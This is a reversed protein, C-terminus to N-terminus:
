LYESFSQATEKDQNEFAIQEFYVQTSTINRHRLWSMIEIPTSGKKAQLIGCSHRLSHVSFDSSLGAQQAYKKFREKVQQPNIAEDFIRQSPFLYLNEMRLKRNRAKLWRELKSFLRASLDYTRTRGNKLGTISIQFADLNVDSMKLKAAESVRLGLFFILRFLFMDRKDKSKDVAQFFRKLEAEDLYKLGHKKTGKPRAM